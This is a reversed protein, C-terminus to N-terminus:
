DGAQNVIRLMLQFPKRRAAIQNVTGVVYVDKSPAYFAFSGTSGSHGILAPMPKFPSMIRPLKFRMLGYGYQMPFFLGNWRGTMRDLHAADFLRGDFFARLFILQEALTSVLGGSATQSALFQPIHVAQDGMFIAAPDGLPHPQDLPYATTHQLNLPAAILERFVEAIPQGTVAEIIAGLLEYNTDAYHAKSGDGAGPAWKPTLTRTIAVVRQIDVTQDQGAKLEDFLSRGGEPKDEYYDPLGSTQNVLQYVKIQASYDTGNYVHIGDLLDAPLYRSIPAELDIQGRDCLQMIAAATYMKAISAIPYPTDVTMPVRRAGDAYGAAGALDVRGDASQVGIACNVINGGIQQDVIAQLAQQDMM